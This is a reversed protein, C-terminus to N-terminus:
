GVVAFATHFVYQSERQTHEDLLRDVQVLEFSRNPSDQAPTIRLRVGVLFPQYTYEVLMGIARKPQVQQRENESKQAKPAVIQNQVASTPPAAFGLEM